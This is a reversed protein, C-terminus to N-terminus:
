NDSLHTEIWSWAYALYDTGTRYVLSSWLVRNWSKKYARGKKGYTDNPVAEVEYRCLLLPFVRTVLCVNTRYPVTRSSFSRTGCAYM